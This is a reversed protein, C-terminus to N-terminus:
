NELLLEQSKPDLPYATHSLFTTARHYLTIDASLSRLPPKRLATFGQRLPTPTQSQQTQGM